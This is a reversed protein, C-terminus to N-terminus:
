ESCYHLPYLFLLQKTSEKPKKTITPNKNPNKKFVNNIQKSRLLFINPINYKEKSTIFLTGQQLMLNPSKLM